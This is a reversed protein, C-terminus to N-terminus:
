LRKWLKLHELAKKFAKVIQPGPVIGQADLLSDRLSLRGDRSDIAWREAMEDLEAETYTHM